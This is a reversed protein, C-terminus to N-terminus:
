AKDLAGPAPPPAPGPPQDLSVQTFLCGDAWGEAKWLGAWDSMETFDSLTSKPLFNLGRSVTQFDNKLGM